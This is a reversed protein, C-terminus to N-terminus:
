LVWARWRLVWAMMKVGVFYIPSLLLCDCKRKQLETNIEDM